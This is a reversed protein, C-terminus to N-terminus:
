GGTAPGRGLSPPLDTDYLLELYPGLCLTGRLPGSIVTFAVGNASPLKNALADAVGAQHSKIEQWRTKKNTTHARQTSVMMGGNTTTQSEQLENIENAETEDIGSNM